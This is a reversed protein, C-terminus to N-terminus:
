TRRDCARWRCGPPAGACTLNSSSAPPAHAASGAPCRGRSQQFGGHAPRFEFPTSTFPSLRGLSKSIWTTEASPVPPEVLLADYIRSSSPGPGTVGPHPRMPKLSRASRERKVERTSNTALRSRRSATLSSRRTRAMTVSVSAMGIPDPDPTLARAAKPPPVATTFRSDSTPANKTTKMGALKENTRASSDKTPSRSRM